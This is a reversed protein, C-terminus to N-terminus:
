RVSCFFFLICSITQENLDFLSVLDLVSVQSYTFLPKIRLGYIKEEFENLMSATTICLGGAIQIFSM